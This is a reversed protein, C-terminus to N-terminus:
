KQDARDRNQRLIEIGYLDFLDLWVPGVREAAQGILETWEEPKIFLKEYVPYWEFDPLAIQDYKFPQFKIGKQEYPLDKLKGIIELIAAVNGGHFNALEAILFPPNNM